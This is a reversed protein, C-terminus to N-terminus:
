MFGFDHFIQWYSNLKMIQKMCRKKKNDSLFNLQVFVSPIRINYKKIKVALILDYTM